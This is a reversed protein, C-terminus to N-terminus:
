DQRVEPDMPCIYATPPVRYATPLASNIEVLHTPAAASDGPQMVPLQLGSAQPTPMLYVDPQAQFRQLCRPNCFYYTQGQYDFKGAAKAPDIMMGCVPDLVRQDPVNVM